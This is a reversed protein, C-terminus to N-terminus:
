GVSSRPCKQAQFRLRVPSRRRVLSISCLWSLKEPMALLLFGLREIPDLRKSSVAAKKFKIAAEVMCILGM